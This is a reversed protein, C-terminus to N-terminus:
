LDEPHLAFVAGADPGGSPETASGIVVDPVGDGDLDPGAAVTSCGREPIRPFLGGDNGLRVDAESLETRGARPGFAIYVMGEDDSGMGSACIVIDAYGDADLDAAAVGAGARGARDPDDEGELEADALALPTDGAVIRTFLYVAGDEDSLGSPGEPWADPAGILLDVRGDGDVDGSALTSAARDQAYEGTLRADAGALAGGAVPSYLVYAVGADAATADSGDAGIVLDSLGDGDLDGPGAVAVGARDGASEGLLAPWADVPGSGAGADVLYVGGRGGAGPAGLALELVGDGDLDGVGAVSFGLEDGIAGFLVVGHALADVDVTPATALVVVGGGGTGPLGLVLDVDGDQDLDGAPAVAGVAGTLAPWPALAEIGARLPGSVVTAGYGPAGVVLDPAGDGDVDGPLTVSSGSRDGAEGVLRTRARDVDRQCYVVGDCDADLGRLCSEDADPHVRPDADDCDSGEPVRDHGDGDADHDSGGSCDMDVGDYPVDLAGPHRAADFDDCDTGGFSQADAGDGDFDFDSRGDCDGDRGDYYVEGADPSVLPDSDDCDLGGFPTADWGDGDADFDSAGDCDSDAGDYPLDLAGPWVSPNTDDCDGGGWAEADAGDGDGDYDSAGDCDADRGDYPADFAGPHTSPDGDDCDGGGASVADHGDRDADHDSHGDCDADLGDYPPDPAGPHVADDTDDCDRGGLASAAFGDGDADLDSAGDCDSDVGDYPVEPAGPHVAPDADDCDAPPPFGDGDRDDDPRGDCNSDVGDYPPDPAGPYVAADRDDCDGGGFQAANHGDGDRDVRRAVAGPGVTPCAAVSAAVAAALAPRWRILRFRM